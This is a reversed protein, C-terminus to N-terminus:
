RVYGIAYCSLICMKAEVGRIVFVPDDSSQPLRAATQLVAVHGPDDPFHERQLEQLQPLSYVVAFWSNNPMIRFVVMCVETATRINFSVIGAQAKVEIPNTATTRLREIELLADIMMLAANGSLHQLPPHGPWGAEGLLQIARHQFPGHEADVLAYQEITFVVWLGGTESSILFAGGPALQLALKM